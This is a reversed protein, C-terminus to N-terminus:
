NSVFNNIKLHTRSIVENLEDNKKMADQIKRELKYLKTRHIIKLCVFTKRLEKLM